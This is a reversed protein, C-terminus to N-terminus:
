RTLVCTSLITTYTSLCVFCPLCFDTKGGAEENLFTASLSGVSDYETHSFVFRETRDEPSCSTTSVKADAKM